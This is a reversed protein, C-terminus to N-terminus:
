AAQPGSATTLGDLMVRDLIEYAKTNLHLGDGSTFDDRLFRAADNTRLAAELDLLPLREQAAYRRIWDNHERITEIKGPHTRAHERTVPVVTSLIPEIKAERLRAVWATMLTRYQGADGPFYAACEKLVVVDPLQPAPKFFGKIYTRTLRFKRKPRMLIEELAPSKDYEYFAVSELSVRDNHTRAAWEKLNWAKGVSAGLLLVKTRGSKGEEEATLNSTTLYAVMIAGAVFVAFVSLIIKM